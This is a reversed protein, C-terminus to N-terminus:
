NSHFGGDTRVVGPEPVLFFDLLPELAQAVFDRVEARMRLFRHIIGPEDPRHRFSDRATFKFAANDQAAGAVALGDNGVADFADAAGQAPVHFGRSQAAPMVIGIDNGEAFAHDAEFHREFNDPGPQFCGELPSSMLM